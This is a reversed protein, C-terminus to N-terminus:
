AHEHYFAVATQISILIFPPTFMVYVNKQPTSTAPLPRMVWLAYLADSTVM